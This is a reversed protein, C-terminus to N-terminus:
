PTVVVPVPADGNEPQIGVMMRGGDDWRETRSDVNQVFKAIAFLGANLEERMGQLETTMTSNTTAITPTTTTNTSPTLTPSISTGLGNAQIDAAVTAARQILALDKAYESGSVSYQKSLSMLDKGLTLLREAAATDGQMALISDNQFQNRVYALNRPQETEGRAKRAEEALDRLSKVLANVESNAKDLSDQLDNFEPALALIQGYLKQGAETSVDISNVLDRYAKVDSPLQKGFLAFENTLRRTLEAAQEAPSLMEFYADFGSSLVDLGGAGLVMATTLYKTDKGTMFLQDQLDRLEIIFSYLEEATGDFQNVMDYFGGKISKTSENLLVSQRIIESAVDGQKAIIDTYNIATYGLQDTYYAAQEIGIAVRTLTEFYGEGIKQFADLGKVANKAVTDAQASIVAELKKQIEEGTLGKTDIKGINIISNRLAQTVENGDKGLASSATLISNFIGDFILGFQNKIEQDVAGYQTSYSTSKSFWSKKTTAVDAYQQLNLGTDLVSGLSQSGAFLGSGTVEASTKGFLGGLLSTIIGGTLDGLAGGFLLKDLGLTLVNMMTSSIGTYIKNATGVVGTLKDAYTLGGAINGVDGRIILNAVGGLSSEINKLARLMANNIPLMLDSNEALLDISKKISESQAEKDGFVTGTGNNNFSDYSGSSNSGLGGGALSVGLGAVLAAMAAFGVFALPGAQQAASLIAGIGKVINLGGEAAVKTATTAVYSAAKQVNSWLELATEKITARQNWLKFAIVGAQYAQELKGITKYAKSEESFLTKVGKLAATVQQQQLNNQDVIQKKELTARTLKIKALTDENGAAEKAQQDLAAFNQDYKEKLADAGGLLLNLGSLASEFPNGFDGFVSFDITSFDGLPNAKQNVLYDNYEKVKQVIDKWSDLHEVESKNIMDYSNAIDGLDNNQMSSYIAAQRLMTNADNAVKQLTDARRGKKQLDQIQELLVLQEPLLHKNTYLLNDIQAEEVTKGSKTLELINRKEIASNRYADAQKELELTTAKQAYQIGAADPTFGLSASKESVSPLFGEAIFKSKNKMTELDDILSKYGQKKNERKQEAEQRQKEIEARQKDVAALSKAMELNTGYWRVYEKTAAIKAVDLDVGQNLLKVYEQELTLQEPFNNIDSKKPPKDQKNRDSIFKSEKDTWLQLEQAAPSGQKIYVETFAEQAKLVTKGIADYRKTIANLQKQSPKAGLAAIEKEKDEQMARNAKVIAPHQKAINQSEKILQQAIGKDLDYSQMVKLTTKIDTVGQRFGEIMKAFSDAANMSATALDDVGNKLGKIAPSANQAENGSLQINTGLLKATNSYKLAEKAADNYVKTQDILQKASEESIAGMKLLATTTDDFSKTGNKAAEIAQNAGETLTNGFSKGSLAEVMSLYKDKAEDINNNLKKVDLALEVQANERQAATLSEVEQKTMKVLSSQEILKANAQAANDRMLLYSTAVGVVTLALGAWGGFFGLVGQMARGVSTIAASMVISSRTVNAQQAATNALTAQYLISQIIALIMASVYRTAITIALLKFAEVVFNITGANDTFWQKVDKGFERAGKAAEFMNKALDVMMEGFYQTVKAGENFEGIAVLFGTKIANAGQELTVGLKKNEEILKPYEKLLARAVLATTLFGESSLKKLSEAAIGSGDAIAKLFRPSAESIARFEDGALKGSAMAQSFQITASAAEQATAGGIRMSKGFADVVSTVAATNAGIKQMAPLLRSFLTATERLGVNNEISMQALQANVRGLEGADKIYLNMRNQIATYEDAMSIFATTLAGIATVVGYIATSLVAYFAIGKIQQLLKSQKEAAVSSSNGLSGLATSTNTLAQQYRNLTGVDAGGIEMKALQTSAGKGFGQNIYKQKTQELVLAKQREANILKEKALAAEQAKEKAAALREDEKYMKRMEELDTNKTSVRDLIGGGLNKSSSKSIDDYHKRIKETEALHEKARTEAEKYQNNLEILDAEQYGIRDLIGNGRRKTSAKSLDDFQKYVQQSHSQVAQEASRYRNNLEILDSEQYGVRDLVGNGLRKTSSKSVNDFQKYINQAHQKVQQEAERYQANLDKLDQQQYGIKDLIGGGMWKVSSKSLDRYEKQVKEANKKLEIIGKNKGLQSFMKDLDGSKAGLQKFNAMISATTKDLGKGLYDGIIKQKELAKTTKDVEKAAEKSSEKVKKQSTEFDAASKKGQTGIKDVKSLLDDVQKNADKLGNANIQFGIKVLDM